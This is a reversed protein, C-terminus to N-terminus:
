FTEKKNLFYEIDERELKLLSCIGHINQGNLILRIIEKKV